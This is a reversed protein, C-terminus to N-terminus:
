GLNQWRSSLLVALSAITEVQIALGGFCDHGAEKLANIVPKQSRKPLDSPMSEQRQMPAREDCCAVFTEQGVAALALLDPCSVSTGKREPRGLHVHGHDTQLVRTLRRQQSYKRYAKGVCGTYLSVSVLRCLSPLEGDLLNAVKAYIRIPKRLDSRQLEMGVTPKLM